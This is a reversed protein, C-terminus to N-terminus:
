PRRRIAGVQGEDQALEATLLGEPRELALGALRGEIRVRDGAARVVREDALLAVDLCAEVGKGFSQLLGGRGEPVGDGIEIGVAHWRDIDDDRALAGGRARREDARDQWRERRL